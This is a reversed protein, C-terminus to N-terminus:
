KRAEIGKNIHKIKNRWIYYHIVWVVVFIAVFAGFYMFFGVLSHPMWHAFYAIPLMIISIISFHIGTQKAISWDEMEWIVSAAASSAGLLGSLVAQIVVAGIESGVAEILSPVVPSYYGDGVFLSIIITIVYGMSIGLPCGLLGRQIVKKKM